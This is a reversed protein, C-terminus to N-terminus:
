RRRSSRSFTSFLTESPHHNGREVPASIFALIPEADQTLHLAHSGIDREVFLQSPMGWSGAWTVHTLGGIRWDASRTATVVHLVGCGDITTRPEIFFGLSLDPSQLWAKGDRSHAHRLTFQDSEIHDQRWIVHVTRDRGVLATLYTAGLRGSRSVLLPSGWNRGSDPSSLVLISGLDSGGQAPPEPSIFAVYPKSGDFALSTYTIPYKHRLLTTHWQTADRRLVLLEPLSTATAEVPVVVFIQGTGSLGLSATEWMM